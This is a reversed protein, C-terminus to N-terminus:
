LIGDEPTHCGTAKTLVLTKSSYTAEMMMTSLILLSPINATVLLWCVSHRNSTIALTGLASIRTVRIISARLEKLVETRVLAVRCLM